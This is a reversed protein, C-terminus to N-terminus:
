RHFQKDLSEPIDEKAVGFGAKQCSVCVRPLAESSASESPQFHIAIRDVLWRRCREDNFAELYAKSWPMTKRKDAGKKILGAEHKFSASNLMNHASALPIGFEEAMLKATTQKSVIIEKTGQSAAGVCSSM